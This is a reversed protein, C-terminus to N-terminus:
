PEIWERVKMRPAGFNDGGAGGQLNSTVTQIQYTEPLREAVKKPISIRVTNNDDFATEDPKESAQLIYTRTLSAAQVPGPLSEWLINTGDTIRFRVRRDIVTANTVLSVRLSELDWMANSPVAENVNAGEGPDTGAISRKNGDGTIFGLSPNSMSVPSSNTEVYGSAVKFTRNIKLDAISLRAHCVGTKLSPSSTGIEAALLYCDVVNGITVSTNTRNSTTITHDFAFMVIEGNTFLLRLAVRLTPLGADSNMYILRLENDKTIYHGAISLKSFQDHPDSM